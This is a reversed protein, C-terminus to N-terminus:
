RSQPFKLSLAPNTIRPAPGATHGAGNANSGYVDGSDLVRRVEAHYAQPSLFFNIFGPGAIEVKSIQASPPLAAVLAEAVARPNKRAPKALLM